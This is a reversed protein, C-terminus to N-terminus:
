YLLRGGLGGFIDLSSKSDILLQTRVEVKAAMSPTLAILYTVGGLVYPRLDINNNADSRKQVGLGGSVEFPELFWRGEGYFQTAMQVENDKTLSFAQDVGLGFGLSEVPCYGIVAGGMLQPKLKTEGKIGIVGELYIDDKDAALAMTSLVSVSVFFLSLLKRM